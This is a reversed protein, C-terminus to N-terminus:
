MMDLIRQTNDKIEKIDEQINEINTDQRADVAKQNSTNAYSQALLGVGVVFLTFIIGRIWWMAGSLRESLDNRKTM